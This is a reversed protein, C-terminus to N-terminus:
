RGLRGTDLEVSRICHDPWRAGRPEAPYPWMRYSGERLAAAAKEGLVLHDIAPRPKDGPRCAVPRVGAGANTLDAGRPDGDDIEPWIAVTRGREDRAPGQERGLQRNFDGLVMFPVGESARADIWAELAPVQRALVACPQRGAVLDDNCRHAVGRRVAFGTNQVHRRSTFCFEHSPFLRRAAAAGDVEQLAVVDADVTAAFAALRGLDEDSWRRETGLNCYLARDGGRARRGEPLCDAMLADYEGPEILWEANWTAIRLPEAVPQACAPLAVLGLIAIMARM